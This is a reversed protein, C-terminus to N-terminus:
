VGCVVCMGLAEVCWVCVCVLPTTVGINATSLAVIPTVVQSQGFVAKSRTVVSSFQRHGHSQRLFGGTTYLIIRYVYAM